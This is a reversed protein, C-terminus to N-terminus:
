LASSAEMSFTNSPPGTFLKVTDLEPGPRKPMAQTAPFSTQVANGAGGPGGGGGPRAGGELQAKRWRGGLRRQVHCIKEDAPEWRRQQFQDGERARFFVDLIYKRM